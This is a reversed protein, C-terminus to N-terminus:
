RRHRLFAQILSMQTNRTGGLDTRPNYKGVNGMQGEGREILPDNENWIYAKEAFSASSDRVRGRM